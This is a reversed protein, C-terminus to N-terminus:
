RVITNSKAIGKPVVQALELDAGRGVRVLAKRWRNVTHRGEM